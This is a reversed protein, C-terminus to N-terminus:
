RLLPGSPIDRIGTAEVVIVGPRGEAFRSYLGHRRPPRLRGRHRAVAGVRAGLDAAGGDGARVGDAPVPRGGRGEGGTPWARPPARAQHAGTAAVDTAIRVM